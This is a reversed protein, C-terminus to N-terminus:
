PCITAACCGSASFSAIAFMLGNFLIATHYESGSAYWFATFPALATLIVTLGAQTAM